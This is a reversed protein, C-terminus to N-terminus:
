VSCRGKVWEVGVVNKGYGRGVGGGVIVMSGRLGSLWM